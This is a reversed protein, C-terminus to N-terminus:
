SNCRRSCLPSCGMRVTSRASAKRGIASPRVTRCTALVDPYSRLRHPQGALPIPLAAQLTGQVLSGSRSFGGQQICLVPLADYGQGTTGRRFAACTPRHAQRGFFHYLLLSTGHTPRSVM